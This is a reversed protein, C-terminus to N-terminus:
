TMPHRHFLINFVEQYHDKNSQVPDVRIIKYNFGSLFELYALIVPEGEYYPITRCEIELCSINELIATAGHLVKLDNGETDVKLYCNKFTLKHDLWFASLTTCQVAITELIECADGHRDFIAKHVSSRDSSKAIHLDIKGTFDSLAIQYIQWFADTTKLRQSIKLLKIYEEPNPEFSYINRQFGLDRFRNYSQGSNAGVDFICDIERFIQIPFDAKSYGFRGFVSDIPHKWDM